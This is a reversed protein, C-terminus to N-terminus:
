FKKYFNLLFRYEICFLWFNQSKQSNKKYM